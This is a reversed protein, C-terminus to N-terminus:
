LFPARNKWDLFKQGERDSSVLNTGSVVAGLTTCDGTKDKAERKPCTLVFAFNTTRILFVPVLDLCSSGCVTEAWCAPPAPSRPGLGQVINSDQFSLSCSELAGNVLHALTLATRSLRVRGCGAAAFKEAFWSNAGPERPECAM